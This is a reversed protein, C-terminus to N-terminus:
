EIEPSEVQLYKSQHGKRCYDNSINCQIAMINCACNRGILKNNKINTREQTWRMALPEMYSRGTGPPELKNWTTEAQELYNWRM